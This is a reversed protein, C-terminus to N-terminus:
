APSGEEADRVVGLLSRTLDGGAVLLEAIAEDLHADRVVLEGDGGEDAAFVAAKRLVERIFAGSAGATREILRGWDTVEVRLGKGYLEFLRRRCDADPPPVQIAQDIRGPRSALAPELIEPRNTTLLFLIDADESLGDMQNLLEFLVANAGVTQEERMTGILDVDELIITAPELLRALQCAKQITGQGAGTLLLVTRGPMQAVLYMATLTKGTGPPGYLLVGRKLHRGAARLREGHKSFRLTHREIRDLLAAPLILGERRITPLHHFQLNLNGYCDPELSLVHGRYAKGHHTRRALQRLFQEARGGEAAMAELIIPSGRYAHPDTTLLLALPQGEIRALILAHKLCALHRDGPLAVDVYEVPGQDFHRASGERSLKALTARRYEDLTVVGVTETKTGPQGLMETLALHLNPRDHSDFRQELVPLTAPEVEFHDRLLAFLAPPAARTTTDNAM